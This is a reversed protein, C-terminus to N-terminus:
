AAYCKHRHGRHDLRSWYHSSADLLSCSSSYPAYSAEDGFSSSDRHSSRDMASISHHSLKSLARHIACDCERPRLTTLQSKMHLCAITLNGLIAFGLYTLMTVSLRSSKQADTNFGM